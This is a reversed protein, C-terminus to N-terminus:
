LKEERKTDKIDGYGTRKITFCFDKFSFTIAARIEVDSLRRFAVLDLIEIECSPYKSKIAVLEQLHESFFMKLNKGDVFVSVFYRENKM